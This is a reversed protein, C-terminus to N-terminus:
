RFIVNRNEPLFSNVSVIHACALINYIEVSRPSALRSYLPFYISFFNSSAFLFNCILSKRVQCRSAKSLLMNEPDELEIGRRVIKWPPPIGRMAGGARRRACDCPRIETTRWQQKRQQHRDGAETGAAFVRVFRTVGHITGKAILSM